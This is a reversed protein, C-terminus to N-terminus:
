VCVCVCLCVCRTDPIQDFDTSYVGFKRDQLKNKKFHSDLLFNATRNLLAVCADASLADNKGFLEAFHRGIM